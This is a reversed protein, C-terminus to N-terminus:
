NFAVRFFHTKLRSKFTSLTKAQRIEIPLSNWLKPALSSFARDGMSRLRTLPVTLLGTESSHLDRTPTYPILLESFYQPALGHLAKYTLMLIQFDVRFSVPLWHLSELVPTIHDRMRTRTLIRAASNQVVQLKNLTAKSAGALLANCYDIRTFVFTNILREAVPFSLMPRLRAINRLHFFSTKVTGQVHPEFTLNSDFIVGLNKLKTKFKMISGDVSLTISGAKRLQHPSGILMVETKESNLCLFHQSMWEKIKSICTSLFDVSVTDNPKTHIYIQTDDAYLYFKLGLSRLLQGLTFIYINFLLPGLISGQPVGSQVVGIKSRFGGMSVFQKRDSLITKSEAQREIDERDAAEGSRQMAGTASEAKGVHCRNNGRVGAQKVKGQQENFSCKSRLAM